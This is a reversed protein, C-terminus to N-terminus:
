QMKILTENDIIVRTGDKYKKLYYILVVQIAYYWIGTILM